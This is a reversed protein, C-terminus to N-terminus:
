AMIEITVARVQTVELVKIRIERPHSIACLSLLVRLTELGVSGLLALVNKVILVREL